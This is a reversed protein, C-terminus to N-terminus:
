RQIYLTDFPGGWKCGEDSAKGRGAYVDLSSHRNGETLRRADRSGHVVAVKWPEGFCPWKDSQSMMMSMLRRASPFTINIRGNKPDSILKGCFSHWKEMLLSAPTELHPRSRLIRKRKRVEVAAKTLPEPKVIGLTAANCDPTTEFVGRLDLSQLEYTVLENWNIHGTYLANNMLTRKLHELYLNTM